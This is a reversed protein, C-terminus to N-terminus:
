EAEEEVLEAEISGLQGKFAGLLQAVVPSVVNVQPNLIQTLFFSSRSDRVPSLGTMGAIDRAATLRLKRDDVNLPKRSIEDAYADYVKPTLMALRNYTEEIVTKVEPRKIAKSIAMKSVDLETAIDQLSAGEVRLNAIKQIARPTQLEMTSLLIGYNESFTL